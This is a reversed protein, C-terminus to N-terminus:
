SKIPSAAVKPADPLGFEDVTDTEAASAQSKKSQLYSASETEEEDMEDELAALENELDAEDVEDPLGYSRGMVDNIESADMLLDAMDDHLDELENIDIKKYAKKMEAHGQKMAAVVEITEKASEHAFKAQDINFAQSSLNDRQTEYMKKQKLVRLARQKIGNLAPGPKMGKMKAKYGALEQDLKKIKVDLTDGRAEIASITDGLTPTPAKPKASGFIRKM